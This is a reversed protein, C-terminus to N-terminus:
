ATAAAPPDGNEGEAEDPVPWSAKYDPWETDFILRVLKDYRAAGEAPTMKDMGGLANIVDAMTVARDETGLTLIVVQQELLAM